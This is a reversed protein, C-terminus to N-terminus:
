AKSKYVRKVWSNHGPARALGALRVAVDERDEVPVGRSGRLATEAGGVDAGVLLVLVVHGRPLLHSEHASLAARLSRPTLAPRSARRCRTARHVGSGRPSRLASKDTLRSGFREGNRRNQGNRLSRRNGLRRLVIPRDCKPPQSVAGGKTRGGHQSHIGPTSFCNFWLSGFVLLFESTGGPRGPLIEVAGADPFAVARVSAFLDPIFFPSLNQRIGYKVERKKQRGAQASPPFTAGEGRLPDAQLRDRRTRVMQHDRHFGCRGKRRIAVGATPGRM